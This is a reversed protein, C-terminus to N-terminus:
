PSWFRVEPRDPSPGDLLPQPIGRLHLDLFARVHERTLEVARNGDLPAAPDVVGLQTGFSPYDIFGFHGTDAVTIWRRWDTFRPWDRDWSLDQGPAHIREAGLLLFPRDLGTAPVPEFFTGDMNVGADVRSDAAMTTAASNGGISHGAMAIRSRDITWGGRWASHRDLLEDLVFTTDAARGRAVTDIQGSAADCAVCETVRGGPFTTAFSEYAHEIGAVVYGRSALDEALATLSTRPLSFGPSLVVLPLGRPRPLPPAGIRAHTRVTSLLDPPLDTRGYVGALILESERPTTYPAPRGLPLLAPYWMSVMLERRREPVWPDARDPDVLHLSTTGVPHPGTPAPLHLAPEATAPAAAAVPAAATLLAAALGVLFTRIM